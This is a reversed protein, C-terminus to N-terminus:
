PEFEYGFNIYDFYYVEKMIRNTRKNKGFLRYDPYKPSANAHVMDLHGDGGDDEDGFDETMKLQRGTAQDATAHKLCPMAESLEKMDRSLNELKFVNKVVRKGHEDVMWSTQTANMTKFEENGHGWGGFLYGKKSGPPYENYLDRTYEHFAEIKDEDTKLDLGTPIM